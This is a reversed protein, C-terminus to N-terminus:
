KTNMIPKGLVKNVEECFEKTAVFETSPSELFDPDDEQMSYLTKEMIWPQQPIASGYASQPTAKGYFMIIDNPKKGVLYEIPIALPASSLLETFMRFTTNQDETSLTQWLNHLMPNKTLSTLHLEKLASETFDHSKQCYITGLHPSKENPKYLTKNMEEIQKSYCSKLIAEPIFVWGNQLAFFFNETTDSVRPVLNFKLREKKPIDKSAAEMGNIRSSTLTMLLILATYLMNLKKM